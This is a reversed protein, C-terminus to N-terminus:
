DGAGSGRSSHSVAATQPIEVGGQDNANLIESLAYRGGVKTFVVQDRVKEPNPVGADMTDVFVTRNGSSISMMDLINDLPRVTYSGAPLTVAGVSFPFATTFKMPETIQAQATGVAVVAIAMLALMTTRVWTAM